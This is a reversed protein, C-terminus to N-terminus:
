TFFSFGGFLFKPKKEGNAPSEIRQPKPESGSDALASIGLGSGGLAVIWTVVRALATLDGYSTQQGRDAGAIPGAALHLPRRLGTLARRLPSRSTLMSPPLSLTQFRSISILFQFKNFVLANSIRSPLRPKLDPGARAKDM